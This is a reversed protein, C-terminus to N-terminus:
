SQYHLSLAELAAKRSHEYVAPGRHLNNPGMPPPTTRIELLEIGKLRAIECQHEYSVQRSINVSLQHAHFPTLRKELFANTGRDMNNSALYHIILRAPRIKEALACVPAKDVLGGDVCWSGGVLVPKFLGPVAGSAHVARILDGESFTAEKQLTLDTAAIVLPTDCEEIRRKPLSKLLAAFGNGKLYGTYGRLGKFLKRLLYAPPDPDWFDTKKLKFLIDKITPENMGCAAMAAVIAGSSSGSYGSIPIGSERVAALVGAHAYFGFFGSSLVLGTGSPPATNM